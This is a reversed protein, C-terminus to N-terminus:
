ATTGGKTSSSSTSSKCNATTCTSQVPRPDDPVTQLLLVGECKSGARRWGEGLTVFVEDRTRCPSRAWGLKRQQLLPEFSVAGRSQSMM